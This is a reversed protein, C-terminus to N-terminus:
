IDKKNNNDQEEMEDFRRRSTLSLSSNEISSTFKRIILTAESGELICIMQQFSAGMANSVISDNCELLPYKSKVAELVADFGEPTFFFSLRDLKGEYYELNIPNDPFKSKVGGITFGYIGVNSVKKETMGIKLGKIEIVPPKPAELVIPTDPTPAVKLPKPLKYELIMLIM